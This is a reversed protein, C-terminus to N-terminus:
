LFHHAAGFRELVGLLDDFGRHSGRLGALRDAVFAVVIVVQGKAAGCDPPKSTLCSGHGHAPVLFNLPRLSVPVLKVPWVQGSFLIMIFIIKIVSALTDIVVTIKPTM